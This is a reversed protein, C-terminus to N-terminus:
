HSAEQVVEEAQLNEGHRYRGVLTQDTTPFSFLLAHSNSPSDEITVVIYYLNEYEPSDFERVFSVLINGMSDASRWIEDAEEIAPERLEYFEPFRNEPIDNESRLMLMADYLGYALEDGENLADGDLAGLPVDRMSRDFIHEGRRYSKVLELDNTPFHLYVFSPMDETVYCIAIHYLAEARDEEDVEEGEHANMNRIYIYLFQEPITQDDEWVEDPDELTVTLSKEFDVFDKEPIDDASRSSFFEKELEEIHGLFHEYLDKESSFVLGASQDIIIPEEKLVINEGTMKKKASKMNKVKM